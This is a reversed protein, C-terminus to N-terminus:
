ESLIRRIECFSEAIRMATWGIEKLHDRITSKYNRAEGGKSEIIRKLEPPTDCVLKVVMAADETLEEMFVAVRFNREQGIICEDRVQTYRKRQKFNSRAWSLLGYHVCRHLWPVFPIRNDYKDYASLFADTARSMADDFNMGNKKVFSRVWNEVLSRVEEFTEEASERGRDSFSEVKSLCSVMSM